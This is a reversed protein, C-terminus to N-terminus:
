LSFYLIASTIKPGDTVCDKTPDKTEVWRNFFGCVITRHENNSELAEEMRTLPLALREYLM